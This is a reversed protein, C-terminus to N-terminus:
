LRYEPRTRLPTMTVSSPLSRSSVESLVVAILYDASTPVTCSRPTALRDYGFLFGAMCVCSGLWYARLRGKLNREVQIEAM